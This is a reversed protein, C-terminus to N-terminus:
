HSIKNQLLLGSATVDSSDSLLGEINLSLFVRSSSESAVIGSPEGAYEQTSGARYQLDMIFSIADIFDTSPVIIGDITGKFTVRGETTFITLNSRGTVELPDGIGYTTDGITVTLSFRQVFLASVSVESNTINVVGYGICDIVIAKGRLEEAFGGFGSGTISRIVVDPNYDMSIDAVPVVPLHEIYDIRRAPAYVPVSLSIVFLSIVLFVMIRKVTVLNKHAPM